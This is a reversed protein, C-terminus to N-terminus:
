VEMLQSNNNENIENKFLIILSTKIICTIFREMICNNRRIKYDLKNWVFYFLVKPFADFANKYIKETGKGQLQM